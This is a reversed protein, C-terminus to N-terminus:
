EGPVRNARASAETLGPDPLGERTAPDQPGDQVERCPSPPNGRTMGLRLRGAQNRGRRNLDDPMRHDPCGEERRRRVRGQPREQVAGGGAMLLERIMRSACRRSPRHPWQRPKRTQSSPFQAPDSWRRHPLRPLFHWVEHPWVQRGIRYYWRMAERLGPDPHALVRWLSKPRLQVAAEIVKVWLIIRGPPMARTALVQHKYDWRGLDTQIVRRQAAMRFYHTWRHPTAYLAQIQDPDYSLIRRLTRWYDRDTEEEFGVVFAAMSLIGHQRLLRIAERDTERQSDKRIKKLTAEDTSEMGLLFRAVGAQKYLPLIDADRVIDDARTSGVLILPVKEAILAELFAQWAPRSATPNEDAFNVVEV